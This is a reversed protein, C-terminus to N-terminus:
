GIMHERYSNFHANEMTTEEYRTYNSEHELSVEEKLLELEASNLAPNCIADGLMDIVKGTDGKASQIGFSTWERDSQGKYSAGMFSLDENFETKSKSTSGRAIMKQLLYSTGTSSLDEQRSGTGVYVGVYTQQGPFSESVVKVGNPLTSVDVNSDIKHYKSTPRVYKLTEPIEGFPLDGHNNAVPRKSFQQVADKSVLGDDQFTQKLVSKDSFCRAM